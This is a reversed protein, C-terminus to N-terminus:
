EGAAVAEDVEFLEVFVGGGLGEAKPKSGQEGIWMWSM